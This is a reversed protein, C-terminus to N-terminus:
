ENETPVKEIHDIVIVDTPVKVPVLKLGLSEIAVLFPPPADEKLEALPAGSTNVATGGPSNDPSFNLNFDFTGTLGTKNVVPRGARNGFMRAIDDASQMRASIRMHGGLGTVIAGKRGGPLQMEGDKDKTTVVVPPKGDGQSKLELPLDTAGASEKMKLGGKAVVLEYAPLDRTEHHVQMAFREVLLNQFMAPVQEKSAGDPIKARIDYREDALWSPGLLQYPKVDFARLLVLQLPMNSMTILSPDPTGPGGRGSPASNPATPKVSAVEFASSAAPSQAHIALPIATLLLIGPVHRM